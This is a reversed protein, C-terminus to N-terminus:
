LNLIDLDSLMGAAAAAPAAAPAAPTAAPSAASAAAPAEGMHMTRADLQAPAAAVFPALAVIGKLITSVSPM